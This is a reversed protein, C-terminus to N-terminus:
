IVGYFLTDCEKFIMEYISNCVELYKKYEDIEDAKTITINEATSNTKDLVNSSTLSNTGNSITNSSVSNDVETYENIYSGDTVDTLHDQPTDSFKTKSSTTDSVSTSLNSTSNDMRSTTDKGIENETRVHTEVNGLFNLSKFGELMKLYKPMISNLKVDLHIRFSEVTDFNIRRFMYHKLFITEFEEKDLIEEDIPYSFNFITSRAQSPLDRIKVKESEEKDYNVISEMISYLTPPDMNFSLEKRIKNFSFIGNPFM